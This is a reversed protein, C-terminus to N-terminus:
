LMITEWLLSGLHLDTARVRSVEGSRSVQDTLDVAVCPLPVSGASHCALKLTGGSGRIGEGLKMLVRAFQSGLPFTGWRLRAEGFNQPRRDFIMRLGNRHWVGFLGALLMRGASGTAVEDEPILVAMGRDLLFSRLDAEDDHSVM